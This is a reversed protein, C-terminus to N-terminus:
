EARKEHVVFPVVDKKEEEEEKKEVSAGSRGGSRGDVAAVIVRAM